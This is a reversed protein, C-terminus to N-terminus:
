EIRFQQSSINSETRIIIYYDGTILKLNMKWTNKGMNLNRQDSYFQQGMMNQISIHVEQSKASEYTVLFNGESPNPYVIIKTQNNANAAIPTADVIKYITGTAFSTVYLEHRRDEGFSTYAKPDGHYAIQKNTITAIDFMRILGSCYDAYFYKGKLGPYKKGRYVFGGTISCDGTTALHKYESVPFTYKSKAKCGTTNFALTGEYCRWGYNQGGKGKPQVDIEEWTNEGVDGIILKGTSDDFSWRWPNRLGLAWIEHRYKPSDVFPNSAPIRYPDGHHVDIRLMKGLLSDTKQSFNNPDGGEDDGDGLGIYLFGDPGFRIGGGNHFHFPQFAQLIHKESLTDAKNPNTKSVSFRSIQTHGNKDTYDVYFFGNTLYNPDFALGLLGQSNGTSNIRKSIDLFPATRKKGISDAIFIQGKRQVIFLRSDGCNEIDLPLIYGKSFPVLKILNTQAETFLSDLLLCLIIIKRM